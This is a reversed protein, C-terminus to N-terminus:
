QFDCSNGILPANLGSVIYLDGNDIGFQRAMMSVPPITMMVSGGIHCNVTVGEHIIYRLMLDYFRIKETLNAMPTHEDVLISVAWPKSTCSPELVRFLSNMEGIVEDSLSNSICRSVADFGDKIILVASIGNLPTYICSGGFKELRSQLFISLDSLEDTDMNSNHVEMVGGDMATISLPTGPLGITSTITYRHPYFVSM